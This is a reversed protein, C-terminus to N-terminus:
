CQILYQETENLRRGKCTHSVTLTINGTTDPATCKELINNTNSLSSLVRTTINYSLDDNDLQTPTGINGNLSTSGKKLELTLEDDSTFGAVTFAFDHSTSVRITASDGNNDAAKKLSTLADATGQVGFALVLVILLALCANKTFLKTKM